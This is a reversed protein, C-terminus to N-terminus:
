PGGLIRGSFNQSINWRLAENAPSGAMLFVLELVLFGCIAGAPNLYSGIQDTRSPNQFRPHLHDYSM